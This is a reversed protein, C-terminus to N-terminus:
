SAAAASLTLTAAGVLESPDDTWLVELGLWYSHTAKASKANSTSWAGVPDVPAPYMATGVSEGGTCEAFDAPNATMFDLKSNAAGASVTLDYAKNSRVVTTGGWEYCAGTPTTADDVNAVVTDTSNSADGDPTLNTGFVADDDPITLEIKSSSGGTVAVTDSPAASVPTVLAATALTMTAGAVSARSVTLRSHHM